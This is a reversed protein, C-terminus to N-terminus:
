EALATRKHRFAALFLTLAIIWFFASLEGSNLPYPDITPTINPIMVKSLTFSCAVILAFFAVRAIGREFERREGIGQFITKTSPTSAPDRIIVAAVPIAFILYYGWSVPVFTSAAFITFIALIITPTKKRTLFVWMFLVFLASGTIELQNFQIFRAVDALGLFVTAEYIGSIISGNTPYRSSLDPTGGYSLTNRIATAITQPFSNPWFLFSIVQSFVVGSGALVTAKKQGLLLPLLILLFFQPKVITAIVISIATLKPDKREVAILFLLLAPVVFGVSNGRDLAMVAPVSLVGASAIFILKFSLPRNKTAWLAPLALAIIMAILYAVLGFQPNGLIKGVIVFFGPILLAAAPYNQGEVYQSDWPNPEAVIMAPLTFDSFCHVGVGLVNKDCWGDFGSGVSVLNYYSEAIVSSFILFINLFVLLSLFLEAKPLELAKKLLQKM